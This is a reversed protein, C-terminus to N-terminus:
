RLLLPQNALTKGEWRLHVWYLGAHPFLCNRIRFRLAMLELPNTGFSFPHSDGEFILEESDADEILVQWTGHGRGSTTQIYVSFEPHRLPFAGGEPAAITSMLGLINIRLPNAPDQRVDDCLIMHRIIPEIKM